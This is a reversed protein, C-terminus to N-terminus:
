ICTIWNWIIPLGWEEFQDGTDEDWNLPRGSYPDPSGDSLTDQGSYNELMYKQFENLKSTDADQFAWRGVGDKNDPTLEDEAARRAMMALAISDKVWYIFQRYEDNTIETEDMYFSPVTVAAFAEVNFSPADADNEMIYAGGEILTM